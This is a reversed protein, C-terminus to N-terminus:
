YQQNDFTIYYSYNWSAPLSAEKKTLQLTYHHLYQIYCTTFLSLGRAHFTTNLILVILVNDLQLALVASVHWSLQKHIIQAWESFCLVMSNNNLSWFTIICLNLKNQGSGNIVLLAINLLSNNSGHLYRSPFSAMYIKQWSYVALQQKQLGTNKM